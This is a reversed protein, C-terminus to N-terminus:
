LGYGRPNDLFVSSGALTLEDERCEYVWIIDEYNRIRYGDAAMRYRAVAETMFKEGEFLLYCYKRHIEKYFVMAREGDIRRYRDLVIGDFYSAGLPSNADNGEVHMPKQGRWLIKGNPLAAGWSAVKKLVDDTLYDDLDTTLVARRAGSGAWSQQRQM